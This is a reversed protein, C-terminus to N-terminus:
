DINLKTGIAQGPVGTEFMARVAGKGGHIAVVKGKLVKKEKGPANWSVNKGILKAAKDKSDVSSVIIIVQNTSQTRRSRRYSSITAEM